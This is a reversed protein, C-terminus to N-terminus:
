LFELLLQWKECTQIGIQIEASIRRTESLKSGINLTKSRIRSHSPTPSIDGRLSCSKLRVVDSQLQDPDSRWSFRSSNEVLSMSTRSLSTVRNVPSSMVFTHKFDKKQFSTKKYIAPAAKSASFASSNYRCRWAHSHRRRLKTM